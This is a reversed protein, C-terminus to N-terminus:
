FPSFVDTEGQSRTSLNMFVNRDIEKSIPGASGDCMVFHAVQPHRSSFGWFNAHEGSSVGHSSDATVVSTAGFGWMPRCLPDDNVREGALLTLSTGDIIDRMRTNSRRYLVGDPQFATGYDYYDLIFDRGLNGVYNSYTLTLDVGLWNMRFQGFNDPDSPCLYLEIKQQVVSTNATDWAPVNVNLTNYLPSQEIEPLIALLWSSYGPFVYGGVRSTLWGPPFTQHTTHYNHLALGINHLNNRCQLRRAAERAHQVAPLLLAILIGIIAIVVVLEVLNFGRRQSM